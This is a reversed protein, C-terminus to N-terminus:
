KENGPYSQFRQTPDVRESEHRAYQAEWAERRRKAALQKARLHKKRLARYRLVLMLYALALLVLVVIVVKVWTGSFTAQLRQKMYESKSMQVDLANVLNVTAAYEGNIYIDERGLVTGANIPAVLLDEYTTVATTVNEVSVDNPLLLTVDRQPRLITLEGSNSLSIEVKAALDASTVVTRYSFNDFVWHYLTLSDVFNGFDTRSSDNLPCTSGMVIAAVRIGSKEATSILCSGAASTYGTKIGSAYEYYYGSGYISGTCILANSNNLQRPANVNSAATTYTKTNCIEMFQPHRVVEQTLLFFDYATTYHGDATLGNPNVFSTGTMGLEAARRNMRQVFAEISGDLYRAIINCAENASDLMACYILDGFSLTEGPYINSTSSSEDMGIRCDDYATVMEDMSHEGREMSEVALLITMIKTLSAPAVTQTSNKAYIIEGTSLDALVVANAVVSPDEVAAANPAAASFILCLLLVFSFFRIKKM